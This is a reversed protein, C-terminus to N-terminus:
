ITALGYLYEDKETDSFIKLNPLAQMAIPSIGFGM